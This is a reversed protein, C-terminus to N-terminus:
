KRVVNLLAKATKSEQVTVRIGLDEYKALYDSNLCATQYPEYQWSEIAFVKYNGPMATEIEPEGGPVPPASCCRFARRPPLGFRFFRKGVAVVRRRTIYSGAERDRQGGIGPPCNTRAVFQGV